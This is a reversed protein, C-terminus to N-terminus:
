GVERKAVWRGERLFHEARAVNAAADAGGGLDARHWRNAEELVPRLDETPIPAFVERAPPGLVAIGAQALISRDIPYWFSAGSGPGSEVLVATDAGCNLNLEFDRKASGSRVTSLRYVVLELERAPCPLAEHRVCEVLLSRQEAALGSEVVVAVDLDSRGPEYGGLAFSGGAYVGVLEDGLVAAARRALEELYLRETQPEPKSATM